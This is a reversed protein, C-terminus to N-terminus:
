RVERGNVWVRRVSTGPDVPPGDLLLVDGDMGTAIRGVRGSLAYMAAADSTLARLAGDPSMGQSVAYAAMLPLDAAGEEAASHFAVPIGANQLDAFRNHKEAGKEPDTWIVRQTLLVGAVRGALKDAVKWADGAGYLIPKLGVAECADVCAVIEDMRDVAIIVAARGQMARRLPELEPDIGPSRPKGKPEEPKEEKPRRREPRDAVEYETSTQKAEFDASTSGLSVKGKLLGKALEADLKVQGRSGFGELHLKKDKREGSVEILDDSLADCRLSGHVRGEEDLLYLRMRAPELPAFTIKTEWAGTVPKAPEDEGKKKKSADKKEEEKKEPETKGGAEGEKKAEEPKAAPKQAETEKPPTWTAMKKEYEDWKRRYDAARALLERVAKGSQLRNRDSWRLRLGAPDSIVMEDVDTGAPKYALMPAGSRNDGRPSLLVTTVGAQAVRRDALDGPEVIRKLDFRTPPTRTSGELGLFGLADIMGPMAAKAHVVTAGGPRGVRRGVAKIKGGELLLEGPSLVTGDGIYLDDVSLVTAASSESAKSTEYAKFAIEGDVWTAILGAGAALPPGDFVAFDADKGPAISGVRAAVGLIEAPSLTIARLTADPPLGGRSALSAVFRLDQMGVFDPTSIAFRVGAKALQAAVDYRPWEDERTKGLDRGPTNPRVPPKVVVSVGNKSLEEALEGAGQGGDIVLPEGADKFFSLLARVEGVDNAGMRWPKHEGLLTSLTSGLAPGYSGDDPGGRGIDLIERLAVMAGMLTRPLQPEELGLGIDITAPVPPKWYGPTNRAERGVSGQLMASASLVRRGVDTGALKVVAGQGALLRNRAPPLYASTIGEQLAFVYSTYPDFNDIALLTPDATRESAALSTVPSDAAVFGPVIVADPGYDVVRASGPIELDKGAAVIKGDLVLVTGGGEIVAGNEVLQITGARLAVYGGEVRANTPLPTGACSLALFAQLLM